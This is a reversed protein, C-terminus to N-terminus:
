HNWLRLAHLNLKDKKNIGAQHAIIWKVTGDQLNLSSNVVKEIRKLLISHLFKRWTVLLNIVYDSTWKLISEIWIYKADIMLDDVKVHDVKM